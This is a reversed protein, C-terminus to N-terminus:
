LSTLDIVDTKKVTVNIMQRAYEFHKSLESFLDMNLHDAAKSYSGKGINSYYSISLGKRAGYEPFVGTIFLCSDALEKSLASGQRGQINSITLYTEAFSSQPTFNPKKIHNALLFVVYSELEEPLGMGTIGKAESMLEYFMDIYVDKM